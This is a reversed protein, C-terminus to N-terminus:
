EDTVALVRTSPLVIFILTISTRSSDTAQSSSSLRAPSRARAPGSAAARNRNYSPSLAITSSTSAAEILNILPKGWHCQDKSKDALAVSPFQRAQESSWHQRREM